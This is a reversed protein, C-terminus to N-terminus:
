AGGKAHNQALTQAFAFRPSRGRESASRPRFVRVGFYALAAVFASVVIAIAAIM